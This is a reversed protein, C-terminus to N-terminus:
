IFTCVVVIIIVVYKLILLYCFRIKFIVHVVLLKKWNVVFIKYKRLLVKYKKRREMRLVVKVVWKGM